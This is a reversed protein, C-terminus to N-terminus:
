GRYGGRAVMASLWPLQSVIPFCPFGRLAGWGRSSGWSLRCVVPTVKAPSSYWGSFIRTSNTTSADCFSLNLTARAIFCVMPNIISDFFCRIMRESFSVDLRKVVIGSNGLPWVFKSFNKLTVCDFCVRDPFPHTTVTPKETADDVPASIGSVLDIFSCGRRM